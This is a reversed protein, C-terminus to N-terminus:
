SVSPNVVQTPIRFLRCQHNSLSISRGDLRINRCQREKREGNEVACSPHRRLQAKLRRVEQRTTMGAPGRNCHNIRLLYSQWHPRPQRNSIAAPETDSVTRPFAARELPCAALGQGAGLVREQVRLVARKALSPSRWAATENLRCQLARRM